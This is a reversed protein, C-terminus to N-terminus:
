RGPTVNVERLPSPLAQFAARKMKMAGGSENM